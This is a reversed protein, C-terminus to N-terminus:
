LDFLIKLFYDASHLHDAHDPASNGAYSMIMLHNKRAESLQQMGNAGWKLVAKRRLNLQQLLYDCAETTSVFTGPFVESHTILFRKSSQPRAADQALKLYIALNTSDIRGGEALVQGEPVYSAHIGDLLLVSQVLAYNEPSSMIQRIAGYGASFGSLIIQQVHIKHGTKAQIHQKLSDILEPFVTPESFPQSYARSGSGLNVTVAILNKKRLKTSAQEAIFAAGHFHLWLNTKQTKVVPEPIFVEVKGPSFNKFQFRIGALEQKEIRAHLRTTEVMPSPNQHGPSPQTQTRVPTTFLILIVVFSFFRFQM